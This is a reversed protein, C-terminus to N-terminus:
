LLMLKIKQFARNRRIYINNEKEHLVVSMEKTSLNDVYKLLIVDQYKKDLSKVSNMAEQVMFHNEIKGRPDTSPAFGKEMLASLSCSKKKRGEDIIINNATRYVFAKLNKITRGTIIYKWTRYFAEQMYDEAKERDSVRYYCYRYIADAYTNYAETFQKEQLSEM